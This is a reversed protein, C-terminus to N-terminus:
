CLTESEFPPIKFPKFSDVDQILKHCCDWITNYDGFGSAQALLRHDIRIKQINGMDGESIPSFAANFNRHLFFDDLETKCHICQNTLSNNEKNIKIHDSVDLIVEVLSDPINSIYSLPTPYDVVNLEWRYINFDEDEEDSDNTDSAAEDVELFEANTPALFGFVETVKKCNWCLCDTKMIHFHEARVNYLNPLWKSFRLTYEIDDSLIFWKFNQEDWQAGLLKVLHVEERRVELDYRTQSM